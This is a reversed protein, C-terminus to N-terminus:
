QWFCWHAVNKCSLRHPSLSGQVGECLVGKRRHCAGEKIVKGRKDVPDHGQGMDVSYIRQSASKNGPRLSVIELYDSPSAQPSIYFSCIIFNPLGPELDLIQCQKRHSWLADSRLSDWKGWFKHPFQNLFVHFGLLETGFSKGYTMWRIISDNDNTNNDDDDDVDDDDKNHITTHSIRLSRLILSM